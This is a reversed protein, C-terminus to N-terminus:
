RSPLPFPAAAPLLPQQPPPRGSGSKFAGAPEATGEGAGMGDWGLGRERGPREPLPAADRPGPAPLGSSSDAPGPIPGPAPRAKGRRCGPRPFSPRGGAGAGNGNGAGPLHRPSGAAGRLRARTLPKRALAAQLLVESMATGWLKLSLHSLGWITGLASARPLVALCVPLFPSEQLDPSCLEM